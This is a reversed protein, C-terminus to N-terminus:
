PRAFDMLAIFRICEIWLTRGRENCRVYSLDSLFINFFIAGTCYPSIRGSTCSIFIFSYCSLLPLQQVQLLAEQLLPDDASQQILKELTPGLLRDSAVKGLKCGLIDIISLAAVRTSRFFCFQLCCPLFNEYRCHVFRKLFSVVEIMVPNPINKLKCLRPYLACSLSSRRLGNSFIKSAAHVHPSTPRNRQCCKM